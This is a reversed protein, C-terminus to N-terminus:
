TMNGIFRFDKIQLQLTDRGRFSNIRPQYALNARIAGATGHAGYSSTLAEFTGDGYFEDFSKALAGSKGFWIGEFATGGEDRLDFKVANGSQGLIRASEIGMNRCAFVPPKNGNGCPELKALEDTLENTVCHAALEMDLHEVKKMDDSTLGCNSNLRQRFEDVNEEKISLGGAMRHGGFKLLLGSCETMGEYMDYADISRGSGKLIGDEGSATLVFTPRNYEEKIKGAVIGALSQHLDKIVIVIINDKLFDGSTIMTQAEAIGTTQMSKRSDNLAKLEGAEEEADQGANSDSVGFLRLAREASDLRGSANLCPGIVFGAHYGSLEKGELGNVRILARLGPNSTEAAARLGYRVIIRNEDMLPMIDCVTAIAAFAMAEYMESGRVGAEENSIGRVAEILKWAVVAGCIDPFQYTIEGTTDDRLKPEVIADADPLVSPIEHHDTVVVTMGLEKARNVADTAAIGNDCTIVTKVGDEGAREIMDVNLGYGDKIRDPLIADVDGGASKLGSLLIYASCIGDVDYDGIIRMRDGSSISNRIIKVAGDMGPILHPDRLDATTGNLFVDTAAPGIVGRNRIIRALIPSIHCQEAIATFDGGRHAIMWDSM